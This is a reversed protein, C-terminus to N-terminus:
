VYFPPKRPSGQYSLQYLIRRCHLLGQNSGQTPFIWQLLTLSGVGTNQGPSSWPSYLGHLWLSDSVVSCSESEQHSLHYPIQRCHLLGLNLGQTLFIGQLLSHCDVGTNKGPFNWPCLLRTPWLGYPWLSDSMVSCSDSENKMCLLLNNSSNAWM